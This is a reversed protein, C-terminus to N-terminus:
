FFLFKKREIKKLRLKKVVVVFFSDNKNIPTGM